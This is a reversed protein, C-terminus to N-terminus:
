NMCGWYWWMGFLHTRQSSLLITVFDSHDWPESVPLLRIHLTKFPVPSKLFMKQWLVNIWNRSGEFLCFSQCSVMHESLFHVVAPSLSAYCWITPSKSQANKRKLHKRRNGLLIQFILCLCICWVAIEVQEWCPFLETDCAHGHLKTTHTPQDMCCPCNRIQYYFCFSSICHWKQTSSM